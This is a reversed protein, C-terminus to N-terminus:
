RIVKTSVPVYCIGVFPAEKGPIVQLMAAHDWWDYNGQLHAYGDHVAVTLSYHGVGFNVPLYFVVKREQGPSCIGLDLGLHYTNTGFVENGLRDKFMIGITPNKIERSIEVWVCIEVIEGVQVANVSQRGIYVKVQKIRAAGDGSRTVVKRDKGRSQQISYDAERKAIVANYYDLVEDPQGEKILLGKDLLIARECLSKVAGPDHSVFLITTGQEKFQRIQNFCKHQFYADGVSLAEDVILIDPRVATAVAFALRVAMGSSYTRLQQDIYDGIEAFAEIAPMLKYIDTNSIGMLQGAMFVNQRGTFDPHFGMGLELLASVRGEINVTGESPQTTGTLIKLLTSKGAGNQGIIGVSEGPEISFSIGRLVWHANHIVNTDGSIWEALRHWRKTYRKYKKGLNHVTVCSM